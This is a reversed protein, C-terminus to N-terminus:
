HHQEKIWEKLVETFIRKGDVLPKSFPPQKNTLGLLDATVRVQGDCKDGAGIGIIPIELSEILQESLSSPVHELVIAFCGSKQLELGKQLIKDQSTRDEAQRRYGIQNVRQPTLGLHGMVPIGVRVLRKIILLTEPEAGEIKVASACSYKLLTGAAAVAQDEGCQYSLFPMDSVVLPQEHRPSRFGRGVAQTHKLMEELTVPLTTAHGLAVMSLSDGVLVVDAGSDEVISSSISDWATLVIIKKGRQKFLILENPLM